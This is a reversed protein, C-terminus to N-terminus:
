VIAWDDADDDAGASGAAGVPQQQPPRPAAGPVPVAGTVPQRQQRPPVGMPQVINAVVELGWREDGGQGQWRNVKLRGEVYALTGKKLRAEESLAEAREGFVTVKLWETQPRDKTGTDVAGRFALIPRGDQLFRLEADGALRLETAVAIGMM